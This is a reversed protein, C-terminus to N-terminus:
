KKLIEFCQELREGQQDVLTITHKGPSPSLAMQHFDKTYGLYDDDLSWYIVSGTSRHAVEFIAKGTKGDLEIPVYIQTSRKPYIFEMVAPKNAASCDNRYPPLVKYQPDKSRYYWEQGPPLVFWAEHKMKSPSECDSSVRYKGTADLHVLQHYPCPSTRLGAVPIWVTSTDDCIDQARYGSKNCIIVEKMESYPQDFWASTRLIKFIDFM